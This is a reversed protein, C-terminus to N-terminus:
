TLLDKVGIAACEPDCCCDYNRSVRMRAIVSAADDVTTGLRRVTRRGHGDTPPICDDPSVASIVLHDIKAKEKEGKVKGEREEGRKRRKNM